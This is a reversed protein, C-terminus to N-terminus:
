NTIGLTFSCLCQQNSRTTNIRERQGTGAIPVWLDRPLSLLDIQETTPDVRALILTDSRQGGPDGGDLFAGADPSDADIAERSDSGVILFNEAAGSAPEVLSLNSYTGIQDLKWRQYGITLAGAVMVSSLAMGTLLVLRQPWSRCPRGRRSLAPM